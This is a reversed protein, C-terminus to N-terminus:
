IQRKYRLSIYDDKEKNHYGKQEYQFQFGKAEYFPIGKQNGKQVSVWQETAGFEKQQNTIANLLLTGIGENRRNPDLYLVFIESSTDSIMGGGGAGVIEDNEIAVFYGGWEKSVLTVENLIRQRNYFDSIVTEIYEKSYIDSYTTWYGETCVKAIGEVHTSSGKCIEM